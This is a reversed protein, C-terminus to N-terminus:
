HYEMKERQVVTIELLLMVGGFYTRECVHNEMVSFIECHKYSKIRFEYFITLIFDVISDLIDTGAPIRVWTRLNVTTICCFKVVTSLLISTTNVSISNVFNSKLASMELEFFIM